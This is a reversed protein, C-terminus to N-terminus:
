VNTGFGGKEVILSCLKSISLDSLVEFVSVDVECERFVWNRVGVAILSDVGYVSPSRGPDVDLSDMNMSQALMQVLGACLVSEAEEPSTAQALINKISKETGAKDASFADWGPPMDVKNLHTFLATRTWYPDAPKNQLILGGTGVATVVQSPMRTNNDMFGSIAREVICTFDQLRIAFFGSSKLIDLTRIDNALMGAGLVPGLDISVSRMVGRSDIHRALADQFANGAAYNAQGRNGIVGTSSSLFIFFDMDNPFLSFLNWSGITKPQTAAQWDDYTMNDFVSDRIVAACQFMGRVPPMTQRIDEAAQSLAETDCIDVKIAKVNVGRKQLFALNRRSAESSAGSRSLLVINRVGKAELVKAIQWSLGGQGALVYTGDQQLHREVSNNLRPLIPIPEDDSQQFYVQHCQNSELKAALISPLDRYGHRKLFKHSKEIWKRCDLSSLLKLSAGLRWPEKQVLYDLNIKIHTFSKGTSTVVKSNKTAKNSFQIIFGALITTLIM